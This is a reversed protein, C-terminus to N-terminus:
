WWWVVMVATALLLALSLYRYNRYAPTGELARSEETWMERKWTLGEVKEPPPPSTALSVGVLILCSAAFSIGAAYLFQISSLRFVENAVFGAIGLPVGIALTYFAGHRNARRWLIGLLFVAVVPPVVYSLVSQLYQWLTPFGQIQPAWAAAVVMVVGTTLRGVAALGNQSIGPRYVRVFDMTVVTSASNFVSDVSSSIAAILAALVIGRLGVPLLDFALTPWVLDPNPLGPYLVLAMTGPLIMIFLIPLKLAAAFLSGWRGHNLDKAGLTRQVMLQNTTWFYLGVILVGTFLGPWPLAPDGAPQILSLGDRPAANEVAEWSPIARFTMVAIITAGIMLVTAQITDSVVVASLGGFITYIGAILALGVVSTWLPVAPFLTRIVLAGAYLAAACDVFVNAFVNFASFAMRSRRDYRKELFEPMTFVGSSLYFPLVFFVFFILVVVAMWEYSYVAIGQNYGAGALGIFSSGSMNTAFLSLGVLPWLFNRGGLFYGEAGTKDSSLALPVIRSAIVYVVM